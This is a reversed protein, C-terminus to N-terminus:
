RDGARSRVEIAHQAQQRSDCTHGAPDGYVCRPCKGPQTAERAEREVYAKAERLTARDVDPMQEGPFTVYWRSGTRQIIHGQNSEYWGNRGTWGINETM